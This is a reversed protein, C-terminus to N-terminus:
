FIPNVFLLYFALGNNIMHVVVGSWISGTIERLECMVVSLAFVKVGVNWQFHMIGFLVSVIMISAFLGLRGRLKGYLWGRFVLEEAIPAFVVIALFALIRDFGSAATAYGVEQTQELDFWPFIEDFVALLVGAIILSAVFGVLALGLDTWTLAKDIGLERKSTKLKKFLKWPGFIIAVATIVYVVGAYVTSVVPSSLDLDMGIMAYGVGMQIAYLMVGTFIALLGAWIWKNRVLTTLFSPKSDGIVKKGSKNKM